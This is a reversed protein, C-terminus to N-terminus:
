DAPPTDHPTPSPTSPPGFSRVASDVDDFIELIRALRTMKFVSSVMPQLGVLKIGGGHSNVQNVALILKGVLLSSVQEVGHMDLVIRWRQEDWLKFLRDSMDGGHFPIRSEPLTLVTVDNRDERRIIPADQFPDSM